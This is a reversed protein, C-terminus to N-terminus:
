WTTQKYLDVITDVGARKLLSALQEQSISQAGRDLVMLFTVAFQPTLHFCQAAKKFQELNRIPFGGLFLESKDALETVGRSVAGLLFNKNIDNQDASRNVQGSFYDSYDKSLKEFPFTLKHQGGPRDQCPTFVAVALQSIPDSLLGRLPHNRDSLQGAEHQHQELIELLAKAKAETENVGAAAPAGAQFTNPHITQSIKWSLEPLQQLDARANCSLVTVNLAPILEHQLLARVGLNCFHELSYRPWGQVGKRRYMWAEPPLPDPLPEPKDSLTGNSHRHLKNGSSASISTLFQQAERQLQFNFVKKMASPQTPLQLPMWRSATARALELSEPGFQLLEVSAEDVGRLAAQFREM